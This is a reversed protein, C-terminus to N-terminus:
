VPSHSQNDIRDRFIGLRDGDGPMGALQFQIALKYGRGCRQLGHEMSAHIGFSVRDSDHKLQFGFKGRHFQEGHIRHYPQIHGITPFELPYGLPLKSPHWVGAPVGHHRIGVSYSDQGSPTWDAEVAGANSQVAYESAINGGSNDNSGAAAPFTYALTQTGATFTFGNEGADMVGSFIYDSSATTTATPSQISNVGSVQGTPIRIGHINNDLPTATNVGTLEQVTLAGPTASSITATITCNGSSAVVAYGQAARSSVGGDTPNDLLTATTGCVTVSDLTITNSKWWVYFAVVHGASANSLTCSRTTSNGGNACAQVFGTAALVKHSPAFVGVALAFCTCFFLIRGPSIVSKHTQQKSGRVFGEQPSYSDAMREVGDVLYWESQCAAALIYTWLQRNPIVQFSM